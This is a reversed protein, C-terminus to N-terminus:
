AWIEDDTPVKKDMKAYGIRSINIMHKYDLNESISNNGWSGCGLTTTPAFGNYLSGGATTSSPANVVLRSIPLAIGAAEIHADNDSHVSTTHGAGEIMLNKKAIAIAEDFSDYKFTVLVPFMKEKRLLDDDQDNSRLLIVKTGEPVEVGALEALRSVSQGVADKNIHGDEFLSSRFKDVVAQDDVYFAGNAKFADIVADYEDAPAIVSQEGSCIIGNDFKRGTIVKEAAANYNIGRDIISQVNGPGVGYSPKGSSYASIVMGPGGTAILVDVSKMLEKTLPISPKEICQLIDEPGGLKAIEAKMLRVTKLSVNKARPHPAIVIANRGKIAFMSNCMTTVTPNTTPAVCGIVGMPKALYLLGKEEDRDIIGVSKKDKLNNWIVKSKAKNKLVKDEYVGMGTEDIADRALEEANDYIVKAMVKVLADVGAQDYDEIKQQAIRAKKIMEKIQTADDM